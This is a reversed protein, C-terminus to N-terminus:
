CGPPPMDNDITHEVQVEGNHTIFTTSFRIKADLDWAAAGFDHFSEHFIVDGDRQAVFTLADTGQRTNPAISPDDPIATIKFEEGFHITLRTGDDVVVLHDNGDAIETVGGWFPGCKPDGDYHSEHHAHNNIVRTVTPQAAAAPSALAVTTLLAALVAVQGRRLGIRHRTWSDSIRM